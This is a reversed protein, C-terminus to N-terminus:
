NLQSKRGRERKGKDMMDMCVCMNVVQQECWSDEECEIYTSLYQAPAAGCVCMCYVCTCQQM